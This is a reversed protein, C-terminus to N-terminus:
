GSTYYYDIIVTRTEGNWDVEAGLNNAIFRAPIMTRGNIIVASQDLEVDVGNVKATKNDIQIIIITGGKTITVTKTPDDWDVKGGLNEAIFRAPVVTRGNLITAAQDLVITKGNVTAIQDDITM